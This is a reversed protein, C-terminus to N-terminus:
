DTDPVPQAAESGALGATREAWWSLPVLSYAYERAEFDLDTALRMVALIQDHLWQDNELRHAQESAVSSRILTREGPTQDEPPEHHALVNSLWELRGALEVHRDLVEAYSRAGVMIPAWKAIVDSAHASLEMTLTLLQARRESDALLERIAQSVRATDRALEACRHLSEPDGSHVDALGLVEILGTWTARATQILDFLVSQALLNWRRQNRRELVQNIVAVTVGVVILNAVLSTLLSHREWYSGSLFDSAGAAVILALGVSAALLLRRDSRTTV